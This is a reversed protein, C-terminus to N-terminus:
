KPIDKEHGCGRMRTLYFSRGKEWWISLIKLLLEGYFIAFIIGILTCLVPFDTM